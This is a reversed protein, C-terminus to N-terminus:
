TAPSMSSTMMGLAFLMSLPIVSAVILGARANGLMLVLVFIVILAGEILNTAVTSIAKGVLKSRDLFPVIKLGEPLSKEIETMRTKVTGIVESSNAGKLMYVIGGVTEGEDNITMAGYRVAHGDRVEAIDRVLIPLNEATTGVVISELDANSTAMGETRIYALNPGKEIYAGGANANNRQVADLIDSISLGFSRLREPVVAIEAQRLFGGFSAVDAVGQTGLLRRRVMWEHITRLSMPDYMATHDKDVELRYQYIEGLGTTIPMMMPTGADPPIM